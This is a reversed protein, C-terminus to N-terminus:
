KIIGDAQLQKKVADRNILVTVRALVQADTRSYRSTMIRRDKMSCFQEWKGGDAFFANWYDAHTERSNMDFVLPKLPLINGSAPQVGNFIVDQLAQKKAVDYSMTANRARGWAEIAYSGDMHVQIVKSKYDYYAQSKEHGCGTLVLGILGIALIYLAKKM